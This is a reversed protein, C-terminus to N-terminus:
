EEKKNSFYKQFGSNVEPIRILEIDKCISTQSYNFNLLCLLVLLAVFVVVTPPLCCLDPCTVIFPRRGRQRACFLSYRNSERQNRESSM